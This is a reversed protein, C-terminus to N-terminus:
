VQDRVQFKPKKSSSHLRHRDAIKKHTARAHQLHYSLAIHIQEIHRLSDEATPYM